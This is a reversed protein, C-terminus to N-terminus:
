LFGGCLFSSGVCGYILFLYIFLYFNLFVAADLFFNNGSKELHGGPPMIAGIHSVVPKPRHLISGTVPFLDPIVRHPKFWPNAFMLGHALDLGGGIKTHGM